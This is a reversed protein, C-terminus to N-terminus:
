VISYPLGSIVTLRLYFVLFGLRFVLLADLDDLSENGELYFIMDNLGASWIWAFFLFSVMKCSTHGASKEVFRLALINTFAWAPATRVV